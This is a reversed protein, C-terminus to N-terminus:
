NILGNYVYGEFSAIPNENGGKEYCQALINNYM